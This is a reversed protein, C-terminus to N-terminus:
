RVVPKLEKFPPSFSRAAGDDTKVEIVPDTLGRLSNELTQPTDPDHIYEVVGHIWKYCFLLRRVQVMVHDGKQILRDSGFYTYQRDM